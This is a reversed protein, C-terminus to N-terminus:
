TKRTKMIILIATTYSNPSRSREKFTDDLRLTQGLNDTASDGLNSGAFLLAMALDRNLQPDRPNDLLLQELM